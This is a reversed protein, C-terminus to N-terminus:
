IDLIIVQCEYSDEGSIITKELMSQHSTELIKDKFYYDSKLDSCTMAAYGYCVVDYKYNLKM